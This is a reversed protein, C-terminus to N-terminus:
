LFPVLRDGRKELGTREAGVRHLGLFQVPRFFLTGRPEDLPRRVLSTVPQGLEVDTRVTDGLM